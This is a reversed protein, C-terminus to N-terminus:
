KKEDLEDIAELFDPEIDVEAIVSDTEATEAKSGASTEGSAAESPKVRGWFKEAHPGFELLLKEISPVDCLERLEILERVSFEFLGDLYFLHSLILRALRNNPDRTIGRFCLERAEIRGELSDLLLKALELFCDSDPNGQLEQRLREIRASEAEAM